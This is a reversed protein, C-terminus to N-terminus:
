KLLFNWWINLVTWLVGEDDVDPNPVRWSLNYVKTYVGQIIPVETM